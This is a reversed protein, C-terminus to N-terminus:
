LRRTPLAYALNIVTVLAIAIYFYVFHNKNLTIEEYTYITTTTNDGNDIETTNAVGVPVTVDVYAISFAFYLAVVSFIVTLYWYRKRTKVAFLFSLMMYLNYALFEELEM